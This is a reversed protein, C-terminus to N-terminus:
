INILPAGPVPEFYAVEHALKFDIADMATVLLDKTKHIAWKEDPMKLLGRLVEDINADHIDCDEARSRLEPATDRVGPSTIAVRHILFTANSSVRRVKGAIYPLVAVSEVAGANYTIVEIPLRTLLNYMAIGDGPVGGASQILLHIRVVNHQTAQALQDFLRHCADNNIVGALTLWVEPFPTSNLTTV